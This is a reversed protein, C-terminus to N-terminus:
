ERRYGISRAFTDNCDVIAGHPGKVLHFGESTSDLVFRLIGEQRSLREELEVLRARLAEPEREGSSGEGSM